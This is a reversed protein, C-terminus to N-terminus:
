VCYLRNRYSQLAITIEITTMKEHFVMGWRHALSCM